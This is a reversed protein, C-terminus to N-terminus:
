LNKLIGNLCKQSSHTTPPLDGKEGIQAVFGMGSALHALVHCHFHAFGANDFKVRIATWSGPYLIFTNRYVPTRTNYRSKMSPTWTEIGNGYALVWFNNLHMHWPHLEDEGALHVANQFVIDVVEGKTFKEVHTGTKAFPSLGVEFLTKTYDYPEPIDSESMWKSMEEELGLNLQHILPIKPLALSINNIAWGGSGDLKYNNTGLLTLTRKPQPLRVPNRSEFRNALRLSWDLDLRGPFSPIARKPKDEGSNVSYRLIALGRPGSDEHRVNNQIWFLGNNDKTGELEALTKTKLLVSFSQGTAIDLYDTTFPKVLTTEVEVVEMLHDDINLNMFTVSSSGIIRLRYTTDPEVDFIEPGKNPANPNCPRTTKSCDFDGKGNFHLSKPEGLPVFEEIPGLIGKLQDNGSRHFWDNLIMLKEPYSGVTREDGTIIIAGQLSAKQFKTHSHWWLTGPADLEFTYVFSERPEIECQTIGGVGDSWVTGKQKIGHWHITTPEKLQNKVTIIVFDDVRGRLTPGPYQGNVVPVKKNVGDPSITKESITWTQKIIRAGSLSFFYFLAILVSSTGVFGM